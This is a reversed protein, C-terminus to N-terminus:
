FEGTLRTLEHVQTVSVIWHLDAKEAVESRRVQTTTQSARLKGPCLGVGILPLQVTRYCQAACSRRISSIIPTCRARYHVAVVPLRLTLITVRIKRKLSQAIHSITLPEAVNLGNQPHRTSCPKSTTKRIPTSRDVVAVVCL